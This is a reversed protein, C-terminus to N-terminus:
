VQFKFTNLTKHFYLSSHFFLSRILPIQCMWERYCWWNTPPIIALNIQQYGSLTEVSWTIIVMERASLLTTIIKNSRSQINWFLYLLELNTLNITNISARFKCKLKVPLNCISKSRLCYNIPMWPSKKIRIM